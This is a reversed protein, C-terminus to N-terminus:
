REVIPQAIWHKHKYQNGGLESFHFFVPLTRPSAPHLELHEAGGEPRVPTM